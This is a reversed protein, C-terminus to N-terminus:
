AAQPETDVSVQVSQFGGGLVLGKWPAVDAYDRGWATVIHREGVLCDNTPDIDVWGHPPCWVSAWAHSADAGVLRPMGPPPLTELYGSVYRAALGAHRLAAVMLHAFDQCVGRREELVRSLPTSVTTAAPDYRFDQHIRHCLEQAVGFLPEEPRLLGDLLDSLGPLDPTMATPWLFPRAEHASATGRAFGDRVADWSLSAEGLSLPEETRVLSRALVELRRHPVDFELYHVHNGFADRWEERHSPAPDFSLDWELCSQRAGSRPRLRAEDQSFSVDSEYSYTTRHILRYIV